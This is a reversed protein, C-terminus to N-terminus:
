LILTQSILIISKNSSISESISFSIFKHYSHYYYHLNAISSLKGSSNTTALGPYPPLATDPPPQYPPPQIDRLPFQEPRSM